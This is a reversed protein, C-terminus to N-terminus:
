FFSYSYYSYRLNKLLDFDIVYNRKIITKNYIIKSRDNEMIYKNLIIYEDCNERFTKVLIIYFKDINKYKNLIDLIIKCEDFIETIKRYPNNSYIESKRTLNSNNFLIEFKGSYNDKIIKVLLSLTEEYEKILTITKITRIKKLLNYIQKKLDNNSSFRKNFFDSDTVEFDFGLNMYFTTGREILKIYSLDMVQNNKECLVETGDFIYIKQAGLIRNIALCIKVLDTGSIDNTRQISSIYSFNNTEAKIPDLFNIIIPTLKTTRHEIDYILRFFNVGNPLKTKVLQVPITIKNMRISFKSGYKKYLKSVNEKLKGKIYEPYNKHTIDFIKEGGIQNISKKLDIYKEEM